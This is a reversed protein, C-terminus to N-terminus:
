WAISVLHWGLNDCLVPAGPVVVFDEFCELRSELEGATLHLRTTVPVHLERACVDREEL